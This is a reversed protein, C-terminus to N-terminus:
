TRVVLRRHLQYYAASWPGKQSTMRKHVGREAVIYQIYINKKEEQEADKNGGQKLYACIAYSTRLFLEKVM